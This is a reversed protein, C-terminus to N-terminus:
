AALRRLEDLLERTFAVNWTGDDDPSQQALAVMRAVEQRMADNRDHLQEAVTSLREIEAILRSVDGMEWDPLGSQRDQEAYFAKLQALREPTILSADTM